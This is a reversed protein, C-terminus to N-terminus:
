GEVLEPHACDVREDRDRDRCGEVSLRRRGAIEDVDIDEGGVGAASGNVVQFGGVELQAFVAGHLRQLRDPEHIVGPRLVSRRVRNPRDVILTRRGLRCARPQERQEEVFVVDGAAGIGVTHALREESEDIAIEGRAIEDDDHLREIRDERNAQGAVEVRYSLRNLREIAALPLELRTVGVLAVEDGARRRADFADAILDRPGRDIGQSDVHAAQDVGPLRQDDDALVHAPRLPAATQLVQGRTVGHQSGGVAGVNRDVGHVRGAIRACSGVGIRQSRQRGLCVASREGAIQIGAELARGGIRAAVVQQGVTGLPWVISM